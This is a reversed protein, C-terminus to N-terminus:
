VLMTLRVVQTPKFYDVKFVDHSRTTRPSSNTSDIRTARSWSTTKTIRRIEIRKTNDHSRLAHQSIRKVNKCGLASPYGRYSDKGVLGSGASPPQCGCMTTLFLAFESCERSQHDHFCQRRKRSDEMLEDFPDGLIRAPRRRSRRSM